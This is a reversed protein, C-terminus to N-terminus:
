LFSIFRSTVSFFIKQLTFLPECELNTKPKFELKYLEAKRLLGCFNTCNDKHNQCKRLLSWFRLSSQAFKTAKESFSFKVVVFTTGGVFVKKQKSTKKSLLKLRSFTFNGFFFSVRAQYLEAKRLLGCFNTCDDKHNQCKSLLRWFWLSSQAFKTAKESFSFKLPVKRTFIEKTFCCDEQTQALVMQNATLTVMNCNRKLMKKTSEELKEARKFNYPFLIHTILSDKQWFSGRM